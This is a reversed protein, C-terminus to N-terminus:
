FSLLIYAINLTAWGSSQLAPLFSPVRTEADLSFARTQPFELGKKRQRTSAVRLIRSDEQRHPKPQRSANLTSKEEAGIGELHM